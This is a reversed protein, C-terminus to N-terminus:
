KTKAEAPKIAPAPQDILLFKLGSWNTPINEFHADPFTTPIPEAKARPSPNPTGQPVFRNLALLQAPNQGRTLFQAPIAPKVQLLGRDTLSRSLQLAPLIPIKISGPDLCVSSAPSTSQLASNCPVPNSRQPASPNPQGTAVSGASLLLAIVVLRM